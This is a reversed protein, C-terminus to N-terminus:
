MRSSEIRTVRDHIEKVLKHLEENTGAKCQELVNKAANGFHQWADALDTHQEDLITLRTGVSEAVHKELAALRAELDAVKQELPDVEFLPEVHLPTPVPAGAADVPQPEPIFRETIIPPAQDGASIAEIPKGGSLNESTIVSPGGAPSTTGSQVVDGVQASPAVEQAQSM